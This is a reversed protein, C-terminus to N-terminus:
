FYNAQTKKKTGEIDTKLARIEENLLEENFLNNKDKTDKSSTKSNSQESSNDSSEDSIKSKKKLFEKAFKETLNNRPPNFQNMVVTRSRKSHNNNHNIGSNNSNSKLAGESFTNLTNLNFLKNINTETSEESIEQLEGGKFKSDRRPLNTPLDRLRLITSERKRYVIPEDITKEQDGKQILAEM